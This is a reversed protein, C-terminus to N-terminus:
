CYYHVQIEHPMVKLCLWSIMLGSVKGQRNKSTSLVIFPNAWLKVKKRQRTATRKSGRLLRCRTSNRRLSPHTVFNHVREM